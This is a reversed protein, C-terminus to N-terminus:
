KGQRRTRPAPSLSDPPLPHMTHAKGWEGCEGGSSGPGMERSSAPCNREQYPTPAGLNLIFSTDGGVGPGKTIARLRSARGKGMEAGVESSVSIALM